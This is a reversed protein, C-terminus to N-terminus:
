EGRDPEITHNVHFVNDPDLRRKVALLREYAAPGFVQRLDTVRHGDQERGQFNVYQGGTAFPAMADATGRVFAVRDADDASDPWVGYVTLGVGAARPPVPAADQPVRGFAGGMHHVDFATGSWRQERGRRVLVEIVGDDLEDFSANRWYARVGKPFVPDFASQWQLWGVEGVEEQDPPALRRLAAVLAEAEARDSGAWAFGVILLPEDGMEMLPLPTMTTTITTMADPLDRTWERLARWAGPWRDATYIFNGAFVTPGLPVARFTFTTVVGFNGGGGRLAWLLERDDTDSATLSQGAAGILDARVLNDATLGYPRTLWGVGGGLTLGAVGTGSVVGLPVALGHPATAADVDALTAGAQVLVTRQAPDVEVRTLSGLDLVVGGDVSGNGAVNHGGGRIALDLGHERAFAVTPAVDAEGGARVVVAPRADIMANWVVRVLDFDADDPVTVTGSVTSRLLDLSHASVSAIGM